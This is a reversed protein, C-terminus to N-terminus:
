LSGGETLSPGFMILLLLVLLVLLLAKVFWPSRNGRGLWLCVLVLLIPGFIGMPGMLILQILREM